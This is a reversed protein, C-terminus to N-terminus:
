HYLVQRGHSLGRTEDEACFLEPIMSHPLQNRSDRISSYTLSSQFLDSGSPDPCHQTKCMHVSLQKKCGLVLTAQQGPSVASSELVCSGLQSPRWQLLELATPSPNAKPNSFDSCVM